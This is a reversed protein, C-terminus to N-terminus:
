FYSPLLPFYSTMPTSLAFLFLFDEAPMGKYISAIADNVNEPNIKTLVLKVKRKILERGDIQKVDAVGDGDADVEDDKKSEEIIVLIEKSLVSLAKMVTSLGGHEAAQLAAFVMPYVGGFFCMIAGVLLEVYVIPLRCYVKYLAQCASIFFPVAEMSFNLLPHAFKQVIEAADVM